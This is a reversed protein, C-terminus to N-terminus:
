ARDVEVKLADKLQGVVEEVIGNTFVTGLTHVNVILDKILYVVEGNKRRGQNTMYKVVINMEVLPIRSAGNDHVTMDLAIEDSLVIVDIPDFERRCLIGLEKALLRKVHNVPMTTFLSGGVDESIHIRDLIKIDYLLEEQKKSKM